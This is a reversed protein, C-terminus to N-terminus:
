KVETECLAHCSFLIFEMEIQQRMASRSYSTSILASNNEDPVLKFNFTMKYIRDTNITDGSIIPAM